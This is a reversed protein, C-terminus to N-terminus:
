LTSKAAKLSDDAVLQDVDPNKLIDELKNMHTLIFDLTEKSVKQPASSNIIFENPTIIIDKVNSFIKNVLSDLRGQNIEPNSKLSTLLKKILQFKNELDQNAKLLSPNTTAIKVSRNSSAARQASLSKRQAAQRLSTEIYAQMTNILQKPLNILQGDQMVDDKIKKILANLEEPSLKELLINQLSQTIKTDNYIRILDKGWTDMLENITEEHSDYLHQIDRRTMRPGRSSEVAKHIQLALADTQKQAGQLLMRNRLTESFTHIIALNNPDTTLNHLNKFKKTASILKEITKPIKLHEEALQEAKQVARENQEILNKIEQEILAVIPEYDPENPINWYEIYRQTINKYDDLYTIQPSIQEIAQKIQRMFTAIKADLYFTRIEHKLEEVLKASYNEQKEKAILDTFEYISKEIDSISAISTLNRSAYQRAKQIATIRRDNETLPMRAPLESIIKKLEEQATHIIPQYAPDNPIGLQAVHKKVVHDIIDMNTRTINLTRCKQAIEKIFLQIKADLYFNRIEHKLKELSQPSYHKTEQAVLDATFKKASQEIDAITAIDAINKKAYIRAKEFDQATPTDDISVHGSSPYTSMSLLCIASFLIYIKMIIGQFVKFYYIM